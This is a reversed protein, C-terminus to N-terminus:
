RRSTQLRYKIIEYKKDSILLTPFTKLEEKRSKQLHKKRHFYLTHIGLTTISLDIDYIKLEITLLSKTILKM